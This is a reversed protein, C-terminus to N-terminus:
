SIFLMITIQHINSFNNRFHFSSSKNIQIFLLHSEDIMLYTYPKAGSLFKISELQIVLQNAASMMLKSNQSPFDKKCHKLTARPHRKHVNAHIDAALTQRHTIILSREGRALIGGMQTTKGKGMSVHFVAARETGFDETGLFMPGDMTIARRHLINDLSLQGFLEDLGTVVRTTQLTHTHRYVRTNKNKLVTNPYLHMLVLLIKYSNVARKDKWEQLDVAYRARREHTDEKGQFVWEFFSELNIGNHRCWWMIMYRIKRPLRHPADLKHRIYWLTEEPPSSMAWNDPVTEDPNGWPAIIRSPEKRKIGALRRTVVAASPSPVDIHLETADDTFM